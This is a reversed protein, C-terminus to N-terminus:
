KSFSTKVQAKDLYNEKRLFREKAEKCTKSWNTSYEYQWFGRANKLFIDIKKYNMIWDKRKLHKPKITDWIVCYMIIQQIM